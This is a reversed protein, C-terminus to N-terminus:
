TFLSRQASRTSDRMPRYAPALPLGDAGAGGWRDDSAYEHCAEQYVERSGGVAAAAVDLRLGKQFAVKARDVIASPLVDRFAHELVAKPRSGARVSFEPLSWALEVLPPHLFPLRCEVGHRMFIKNCRAFNKRHQGLFADRRYAAFGRAQIGHYAFGYSGWLEDSGEGSFVVKFGADRIREALLSCPWAIEVQAKHPMEIDRAVRKLDSVSPWPVTVERLECGIHKAALRAMKADSTAVLKNPVAVYCVLGPMAQKAAWAIASSDLGGSLLACVPVDALTRDRVGQCLAARVASAGDLITLDSVSPLDNGHWRSLKPDQGAQLQLLGGPPLYGEAPGMGAALLGRVESAVGARNWHLPIEGFRDRAALLVGDGRTWAVAFMGDLRVLGAWGDYDLVAAVVETDGDTKFVLGRAQMDERVRRFNWVEGNYSIATGGYVFPQDSRRDIDIIALRRHGLLVGGVEFIGEADPGRHALADIGAQLDASRDVSAVIGCM